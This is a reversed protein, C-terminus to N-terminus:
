DEFAAVDAAAILHKGAIFKARLRGRRIARRVTEAACRWRGALDAVTFFEISGPEAALGKTKNKNTMNVKSRFVTACINISRLYTM